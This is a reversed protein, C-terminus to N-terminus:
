ATSGDGKTVDGIAAAAYELDEESHATSVLCRLRESGSHVGPAIIPNVYVGRDLLASAAALTRMRDGVRVPVIATESGFTDLNCRALASRFVAANRQVHQIREPEQELIQIAALAAGADPPTMAASFARGQSVYRLLIAISADVAAFGGSAPIAKSLSGIRIDISEPDIGFHEAAGRGTPGVLGLAHAEDALLFAGHRRALETLAPLPALDGEMSYVSDVVVLRRSVSRTTRLIHDLHDLDNHVFRRIRARSLMAGDYLSRHAYRDLIILDGPGFLTSMVSVAAAYASSYTVVREAGVFNALREELDCHLRTTGSLARTGGTHTGYKELASLAGRRVRLDNGLALCGHTALNVVPLEVNSVVNFELRGPPGLTVRDGIPGLNQREYLAGFSSAGLSVFDGLVKSLRPSAEVIRHFTNDPGKV